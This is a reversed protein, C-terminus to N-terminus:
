LRGYRVSLRRLMEQRERAEAVRDLQDAPWPLRFTWNAGAVVAPDNIRDRWGFVDPLPLLLLDSGSAFLLEILADRVEAPPRELVGAGGTLRQLSEISNVAQRDEQSAQEWWVLLPETDHTGSAAVSLAPYDSPDLFPQDAVTWSREWRLIRFGPVELTTLSTRVFDPVTGLDEAIIAAGPEKLVGLVQEGLTLQDAEEAPTFFGKGGRRPRGFTRYFGVVHDVRYGDFLDASRRARAHLWSFGDSRMVDWRCLPTGWNQGSASFADPPAGVSVDLRFQGQRAWVDASDLDVMFPLDGLLGVRSVKDRVERWQRDAIWQLYQYFLIERQLTRRAHELAMSQRRRLPAPWRTWPQEGRSAHIARFLAYDELWWRQEHVFDRLESARRADARWETDFFRSFAAELARRKLRRVDAYEVKASARVRGLSARDESSLAQEGGLSEFDAVASISIYLPDIAMASLASYPSPQGPAMENLPLIQLARLGGGALWTTLPVLDAIDGVGWSRASPCAFLPVLVGARRLSPQPELPRTLLGVSDEGAM